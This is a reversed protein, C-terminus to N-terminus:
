GLRSGRGRATAGARAASGRGQEACTATFAATRAKEIAAVLMEPQASMVALTRTRGAREYAIEVYQTIPAPVSYTIGRAGFRIGWGTVFPRRVISVAQITEVPISPGFVGLQVHARRPTVVVRLTMMVVWLLAVVPAVLAKWPESSGLAFVSAAVAFAFIAHGWWAMRIRERAIASRADM